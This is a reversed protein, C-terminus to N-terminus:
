HYRLLLSTLPHLAPQSYVSVTDSLSQPISAGVGGETATTTGLLAPMDQAGCLARRCGQQQKSGGWQAM